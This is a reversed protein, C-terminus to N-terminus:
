YSVTPTDTYIYICYLTPGATHMARVRWQVTIATSNIPSAVANQVVPLETPPLYSVCSIMVSAASQRPHATNSQRTTQIVKSEEKKRHVCIGISGGCHM